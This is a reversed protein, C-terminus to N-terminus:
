SKLSVVFYNHEPIWTAVLKDHEYKLLEAIQYVHYCYDCEGQRITTLVSNIFKCYYEWQTDGAYALPLYNYYGNVSHPHSSVKMRKEISPNISSRLKNFHEQWEANTM